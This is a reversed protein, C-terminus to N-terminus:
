RESVFVRMCRQQQALEAAEQLHRVSRNHSRSLFHARLAAIRVAKSGRVFPAPTSRAQLRDAAVCVSCLVVVRANDWQVWEYGDDLEEQVQSFLQRRVDTM